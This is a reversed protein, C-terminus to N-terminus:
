LDHKFPNETQLLPDSPPKLSPAELSIKSVKHTLVEIPEEILEITSPERPKVPEPINQPVFQVQQFFMPFQAQHHMQHHFQFNM